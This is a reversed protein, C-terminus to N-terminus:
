PKSMLLHIWNAHPRRGLNLMARLGMAAKSLVRQDLTRKGPATLQASCHICGEDQIYTGWPNGALNMLAASLANTGAEAVGVLSQREVAWGPFLGALRQEDFSNVHAWPPNVGGCAGCTTRWLRIDQRYPVGILVWRRAVRAMEACASDLAPSPIHELVEACFVLDFSNDAFPMATADAQLCTIRPDDIQPRELDLASVHTSREALRQTIYGHRAGIDLVRGPAPPLLSLLDAIRQQEKHSNHYQSPHLGGREESTAM